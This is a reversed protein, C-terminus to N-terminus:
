RNKLQDEVLKKSQSPIIKSCNAWIYTLNKANSENNVNEYLCYGHEGNTNAAIADNFRCYGCNLCVKLNFGKDNLKNAIEELARDIRPHAASPLKKGRFHFIIQNENESKVLELKCKLSKRGDTLIADVKEFEDVVKEQQPKKKFINKFNFNFNFSFGQLTSLILIIPNFILLIFANKYDRFGSRAVILEVL